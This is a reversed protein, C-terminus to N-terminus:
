DTLAIGFCMWVVHLRPSAWVDELQVGLQHNGSVHRKEKRRMPRDEDDVLSYDRQGRRV